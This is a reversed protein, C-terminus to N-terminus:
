KKFDICEDAEVLVIKTRKKKAKNMASEIDRWYRFKKRNRTMIKRILLDDIRKDLVPFLKKMINMVMRNRTGETVGHLESLAKLDEIHFDLLVRLGVSQEGTIFEGHECASDCILCDEEYNSNLIVGCKVCIFDTPLFRKKSDRKDDYVEHRPILKM